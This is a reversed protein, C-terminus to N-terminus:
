SCRLCTYTFMNTESLHIETHPFALRTRDEVKTLNQGETEQQERASGMRKGNCGQVRGTRGNGERVTEKGHEDRRKSTTGQQEM